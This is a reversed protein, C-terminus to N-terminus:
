YRTCSIYKYFCTQTREVDLVTVPLVAVRMSLSTYGCVDLYACWCCRVDQLEIDQAYIFHSVCVGVCLFKSMVTKVFM